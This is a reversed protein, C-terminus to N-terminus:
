QLCLLMWISTCDTMDLMIDVRVVKDTAPTGQRKGGGLTSRLVSKTTPHKLLLLCAMLEILM